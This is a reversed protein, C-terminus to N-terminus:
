VQRAQSSPHHRNPTRVSSEVVHPKMQSHRHRWLANPSPLLDHRESRRVGPQIQSTPSKQEMPTPCEELIAGLNSRPQAKRGQSPSLIDDLRGSSTTSSDSPPTALRYPSRSWDANLTNIRRQTGYQAKQTTPNEKKWLPAPTM